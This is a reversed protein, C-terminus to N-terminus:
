ENNQGITVTRKKTLAYTLLMVLCLIAFVTCYFVLYKFAAPVSKLKTSASTFCAKTSFKSIHFGDSVLNTDIKLLIFSKWFEKGIQWARSDSVM